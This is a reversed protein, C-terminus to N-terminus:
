RGQSRHLNKPSKTSHKQYHYHSFSPEAELARNKRERRSLCFDELGKELIAIGEDIPVLTNKSAAHNRAEELKEEMTNAADEYDEKNRPLLTLWDTWKDDINQLSIGGRIWDSEACSPVYDPEAPCSKKLTGNTQGLIAAIVLLNGFNM